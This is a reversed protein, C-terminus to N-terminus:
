QNNGELDMSVGGNQEQIELTGIQWFTIGDESLVPNPLHLLLYAGSALILLVALMSKLAPVKKKFADWARWWIRGPRLEERESKWTLNDYIDNYAEYCDWIDSFRGQELDRSFESLTRSSKETLEKQFLELVLESIRRLCNKEEVQWYYDVETFFYNFRVALAEDVVINDKRLVEYIFCEPMDLLLIQGFINKMLLLREKLHYSNERMARQLTEGQAYFFVIYYKGDANFSEHLDKFALSTNKKTTVLILKRALEPDKICAVTYIKQEADTLDKAVYLDLTDTAKIKQVVEYRKDLFKILM